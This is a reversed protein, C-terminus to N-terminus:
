MGILHRLAQEDDLSDVDVFQMFTSKAIEQDSESINLSRVLAKCASNATPMCQNTHGYNLVIHLPDIKNERGVSLASRALIDPYLNRQSTFASDSNGTLVELAFQNAAKEIDEDNHETIIEDIVWQEDTVHGLIIHGLEHALHFILFGHKHKNTLIIVPRGDLQLALGHMKPSPLNEVFIVPIGIEWCYNLLINFDIWPYNRSLLTERISQASLSELQALPSDYAELTLRGALSTLAVAKSLDNEKVNKAHKFKHNPLNFCPDIDGILSSYRVSLYKSLILSAEQLGAPTKAIDDHWWEPLLKKITAKQFGLRQLKTYLTQMPSITKTTM